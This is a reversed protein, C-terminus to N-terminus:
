DVDNKWLVLTSAQGQYCQCRDQASLLRRQGTMIWLKALGMMYHDNKDILTIKYQKDLRKRLESAITLGGFGGGLIVIENTM